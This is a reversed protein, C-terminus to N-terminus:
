IFILISKHKQSNFNNQPKLSQNKATRNKYNELRFAITVGFCLRKKRVQFSLNKDVTKDDTEKFIESSPVRYHKNLVYGTFKTTPLFSM